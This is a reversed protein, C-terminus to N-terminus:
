SDPENCRCSSGGFEMNLRLITISEVNNVLMTFRTLISRSLSLFRCSLTIFPCFTHQTSSAQNIQLVAAFPRNVVFRADSVGSHPKARSQNVDPRRNARAIGLSQRTGARRSRRGAVAKVVVLDVSGEIGDGTVGMNGCCGGGAGGGVM